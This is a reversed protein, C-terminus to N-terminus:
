KTSDPVSKSRVLAGGTLQKGWWSLQIGSANVADILKSLPIPWLEDLPKMEEGAHESGLIIRRLPTSLGLTKCLTRRDKLMTTINQLFPRTPKEIHLEALGPFPLSHSYHESHNAARGLYELIISPSRPEFDHNFTIRHITKFGVLPGLFLDVLPEDGVFEIRVPIETTSASAVEPSSFWSLMSKVAQASDLTLDLSWMGDSIFRVINSAFATTSFTVTIGSCQVLCFQFLHSLDSRFLSAKPDGRVRLQLRVHCNTPMQLNEMIHNVTLVGLSEITLNQLRPLEVPGTVPSSDELSPVWTISLSTLGPCSSLADLLQSLSPGLNRVNRIALTTLNPSSLTNWKIPVNDLSLYRLRPTPRGNFLDLAETGTWRRRLMTLSLYELQPAAIETMFRPSPVLLNLKLSRWRRSHKAIENLFADQANSLDQLQNPTWHTHSETWFGVINLQTEGSKLFAKSVDAITDHSCITSWLIPSNEVVTHWYHCVLTLKTREQAQAQGEPLLSLKLIELFIEPPLRHLPAAANRARKSSLLRESLRSRLEEMARIEVDFLANWEPSHKEGKNL